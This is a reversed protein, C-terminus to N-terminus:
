TAAAGAANITRMIFAGCFDRRSGVRGPIGRWIGRAEFYNIIKIREM